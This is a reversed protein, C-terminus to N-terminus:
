KLARRQQAGLALVLAFAAINLAAALLFGHTYAGSLDYMWGVIYPGLAAPAGAVAFIFGVTSAVHTRGFLDGCLPPLLTVSGGYSLGFAIAALWMTVMSDSYAFAAFAIAQLTFTAYLAPLRGFRDSLVGSSLRGAVGGLGTASILSAGATAAFGLDSAYAALHVFPVFVVVWSFFYMATVLVFPTSRRIEGISPDELQAGPTLESSADGDPHLGMAEPDRVMYRAAFLMLAASTLAIVLLTTRWGWSTMLVAALPPVLFNGFSAGSSAISVAAGRRRTFWRAITANCPVWAVSMGLAAVLGLTVTLQMPTHVFASAGWGIGLLLAGVTIVHRPGFRDTAKGTAASLAGYAFVYISFPLATTARDWGLEAVMGIVFVGYSFQLGYALFLVTFAAAVVVWGHFLSQARDVSTM